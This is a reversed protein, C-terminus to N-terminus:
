KTTELRAATLYDPIRRTQIQVPFTLTKEDSWHLKRKRQKICDYTLGTIEAWAAICLTLGNHTLTTNSRRNRAQEKRTAWRVNSPEYNGDNDIRDLTYLSSPRDGVDSYFNEFLLWRECVCIGRGGYDDYTAINPNTCRAIMACWIPYIYTHSMGHSRHLFASSEIQRCGCSTTDGSIVKALIATKEAGCDCKCKALIHGRNGVKSLIELVSLRGFKKGVNSQAAITYRSM